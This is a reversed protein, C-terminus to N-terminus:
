SATVRTGPPALLVWTRGPLLGVPRCAVSYVTVTGPFTRAWSATVGHQGAYFAATGSGVVM